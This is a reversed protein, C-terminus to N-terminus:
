PVAKDGRWGPNDRVSGGFTLKRVDGSDVDVVSLSQPRRWYRGYWQRVEFVLEGSDPAWSADAGNKSLLRGGGSGDANTVWLEGNDSECAILRGDPSWAPAYRGSTILRRRGTTVQATFIDGEGAQLAIQRGDPSWSPEAESATLADWHPDSKRPHPPLLRRLGSGDLRVVDIATALDSGWTVVALKRGDPAWAPHSFREGRLIRATRGGARAIVYIGHAGEFAIRRGDPSWEVNSAAGRYLRRMAGGDPRVVYIGGDDRSSAFAILKGDPSWDPDTDVTLFPVRQGYGSDDSGCALPVFLLVAILLACRM